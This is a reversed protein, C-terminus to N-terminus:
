NNCPRFLSIKPPATIWSCTCLRLLKSHRGLPSCRLLLDSSGFQRAHAPRRSTPLPRSLLKGGSETMSLQHVVDKPAFGIMMGVHSLVRWSHKRKALREMKSRTELSMPLKAGYAECVMVALAQVNDSLAVTLIGSSLKIVTGASLDISWNLNFNSSGPTAMRLTSKEASTLAKSQGWGDTAELQIVNSYSLV